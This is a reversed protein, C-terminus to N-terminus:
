WQGRAREGPHHPGQGRAGRRRGVGVRALTLLREAEALDPLSALALQLLLSAAAAPYRGDGSVARVAAEVDLLAAPSLERTTVLAYAVLHGGVDFTTDAALARLREVIARSPHREFQLRLYLSEV